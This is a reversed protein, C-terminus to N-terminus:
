DIIGAITEHEPHGISHLRLARFLSVYGDWSNSMALHSFAFLSVAIGAAEPSFWAEYQNGPCALHYQECMTPAMFFGAGTEGPTAFEYFDWLGGQYEPCLYHMFEYIMVECQQMRSVGVYDPLVHVRRDDDARVAPTWAFEDSPQM